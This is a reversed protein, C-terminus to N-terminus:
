NGLNRACFAGILRDCQLVSDHEHRAAASRLRNIDAGSVGSPSEGEASWREFWSGLSDVTAEPHFQLGLVKGSVFAQSGAANRAIETGAPPIFSDSHFQMWPGCPVLEPDDSDVAIFGREGRVASRVSGGLHRALLQGGFCIGLVPLGRQVASGVFALERTLWPVADDYASEKSGM